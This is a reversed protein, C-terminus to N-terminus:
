ARVSNNIDRVEVERYKGIGLTSYLEIKTYRFGLIYNRRQKKVSLIIRGEKGKRTFLTIKNNDKKQSNAHRKNYWM